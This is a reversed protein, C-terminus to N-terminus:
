ATLSAIQCTKKLQDNQRIIAQIKKNLVEPKEEKSFINQFNKQLESGLEQNSQCGYIQSLSAITEGTGRTIDKKLAVQNITIFLSAVQNPDDECGSTGFTLASTQMLVQNTTAALIQIKGPQNPYVMSGGVGCGAMGWKSPSAFAQQSACIVIFGIALNRTFKKM